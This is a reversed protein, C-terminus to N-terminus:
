TISTDQGIQWASPFGFVNCSKRILSNYVNSMYEALPTDALRRSLVATGPLAVAAVIEPIGTLRLTRVLIFAALLMLLLLAIVQFISKNLLLQLLITTILLATVVIYTIKDHRRRM